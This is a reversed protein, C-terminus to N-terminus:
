FISYLFDQSLGTRNTWVEEPDEGDAIAALAADTAESLLEDAEEPTLNFREMLINIVKQQSPTM